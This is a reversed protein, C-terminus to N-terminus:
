NYIGLTLQALAACGQIAVLGDEGVFGGDTKGSADYFWVAEARAAKVAFSHRRVSVASGATAPGLFAALDNSPVVGVLRAPDLFYVSSDAPTFAKCAPRPATVDCSPFLRGCASRHATACAGILATLLTILLVRPM